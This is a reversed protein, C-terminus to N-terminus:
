FCGNPFVPPGNADYFVMATAMPTLVGPTIPPLLIRNCTLGGGVAQYVKGNYAFQFAAGTGSPFTTKDVECRTVNSPMNADFYGNARSVASGMFTGGSTYFKVTIGAIGGNTQNVTQGLITSNVDASTAGSTFGTSGNTSSNTNGNSGGGGGGGGGCGLLIVFVAILVFGIYNKL